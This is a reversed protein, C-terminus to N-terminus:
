RVEGKLIPQRGLSDWSMLMSYGSGASELILYRPSPDGIFDASPRQVYLACNNNAAPWSGQYVLMQQKGAQISGAPTFEAACPVAARNEGMNNDLDPLSVVVSKESAKVVVSTKQGKMKDTNTMTGQYTGAGLKMKVKGEVEPQGGACGSFLFAGLAMGLATSTIMSRKM